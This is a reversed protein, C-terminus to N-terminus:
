EEGEVESFTITWVIRIDVLRSLSRVPFRKYSLTSDDHFRITASTFRIDVELPFDSELIQTGDLITSLQFSSVGEYVLVMNNEPIAYVINQDTANLGPTEPEPEFVDGTGVDDGLVINKIWIDEISADNKTLRNLISGFGEYTIANQEDYVDLIEGTAKDITEIKIFGKIPSETKMKM